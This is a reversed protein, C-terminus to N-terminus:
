CAATTATPAAGPSAPEAPPAGLTAPDLVLLLRQPGVVAAGAVGPVARFHRALPQVAVVRSPLVEDVWWITTTAGHAVVLRLRATDPPTGAHGRAPAGALWVALDLEDAAAPGAGPQYGVVASAPVLCEHGGARLALVEQLDPTRPLRDAHALKLAQAAAGLTRLSAQARGLPRSLAGILGAAGDADAAGHGAPPQQQVADAMEALAEALPGLGALLTDISHWPPEAAGAGALAASSVAGPAGSGAQLAPRPVPTQAQLEFLLGDLDEAPPVPEGGEQLTRLADTARLMLDLMASTPRPADADLRDLLALLASALDRARPAVAGDAASALGQLARRWGSAGGDAPSPALDAQLLAQELRDLWVGQSRRVPEASVPLAPPPPLMTPPTRGQM